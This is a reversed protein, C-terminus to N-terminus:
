TNLKQHLLLAISFSHDLEGAGLRLEFLHQGEHCRRPAVFFPRDSVGQSASRSGQSCVDATRSLVELCAPFLTRHENCKRALRWVM